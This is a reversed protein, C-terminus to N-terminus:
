VEPRFPNFWTLAVAVPLWAGPIVRLAVVLVAPAAWQYLRVRDIARFMQGYGVALSVIVAPSLALLAALGAGWPALMDRCSHLFQGNRHRASRWPDLIVDSHMLPDGRRALSMAAPVTILGLLAGPHLTWAFVFVPARPDVAGAVVAGIIGAWPVGLTFLWASLLALPWAIHDVIGQMRSLVDIIPLSAWLAVAWLGPVGSAEAFLYMVPITLALGVM